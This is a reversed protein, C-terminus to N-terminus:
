HRRKSDGLTSISVDLLASSLTQSVMILNSTTTTPAYFLSQAIANRESTKTKPQECM